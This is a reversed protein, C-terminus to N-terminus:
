LGQDRCRQPKMSLLGTFPQARVNRLLSPHNPASLVWAEVVAWFATRWAAPQKPFALLRAKTAM